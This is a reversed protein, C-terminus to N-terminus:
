SHAFLPQVGHVDVLVDDGDLKVPYEALRCDGPNIGIGTRADFTWQHARCMLTSGDFKGECLPIDQHPCMGQFARVEGGQLGVLLVVQGGIEAETMEGEWVDDLTCAKEYAM